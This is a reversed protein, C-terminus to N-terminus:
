ASCAGLILGRADVSYAASAARGVAVSTLASVIAAAACTAGARDVGGDTAFAQADRLALGEAQEDLATVVSAASTATGTGGVLLADVPEALAFASGVAGVLHTAVVAAAIGAATASGVGMALIALTHDVRHLTPANGEAAAAVCVTRTRGQLVAGVSLEIHLRAAPGATPIGGM